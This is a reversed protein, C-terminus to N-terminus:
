GSSTANSTMWSSREAYWRELNPMAPREPILQMFRYNMVGVPIDGYSFADGALHATKGLQTDMIKAAAVTKEKGTAIANRIHPIPKCRVGASKRVM